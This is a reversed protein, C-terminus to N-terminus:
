WALPLSGARRGCARQDLGVVRGPGRVCGDRSERNPTAGLPALRAFRVPAALATQRGRNRWTELREAQEELELALTGQGTITAPHDYAHIPMAGSDAAWTEAAALADAYLQGGVVLEAGLARIQEVKIPSSVTPVFIRARVGLRAAAYAVAAGHNGGSAAVVGAAPVDRALLNFFAGRAKFSGTHQLLELKFTLPGAALGFEDRDLELIPTRRVHPRILREAARIDSRAVTTPNM